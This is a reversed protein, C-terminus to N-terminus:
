PIGLLADSMEGWSFISVFCPSMTTTLVSVAWAACLALLPRRVVLIQNQLRTISSTLEAEEAETATYDNYTHTATARERAVEIQKVVAEPVKLINRLSYIEFKDFNRDILSVLSHHLQECGTHIEENRQESRPPSLAPPPSPHHM